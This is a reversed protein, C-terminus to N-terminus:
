ICAAPIPVLPCLLRPPYSLVLLSVLSTCHSHLALPWAPWALLSLVLYATTGLPPCTKDSSQPLAPSCCVQGVETGKRWGSYTYPFPPSGLSLCLHCVDLAQRSPVKM